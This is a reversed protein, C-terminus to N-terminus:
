FQSVWELVITGETVAPAGADVLVVIDYSPFSNPPPSTSPTLYFTVQGAIPINTAFIVGYFDGSGSETYSGYCNIFRDVSPFEILTPINGAGTFEYVQRLTQQRTPQGNLFWQNGTIIQFNLAYTGITRLNVKTAVDIYALDSEKSLERLDENPFQRQERLYPAQLLPTNIM